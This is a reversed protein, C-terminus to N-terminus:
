FGHPQGEQHPHWAGEFLTKLTNALPSQEDEAEIYICKLNPFASKIKQLDRLSPELRQHENSGVYLRKTKLFIHDGLIPHIEEYSDIGLIISERTKMYEFYLSIAAEMQLGGLEEERLAWDAIEQLSIVGYAVSSILVYKKKPFVIVSPPKDGRPPLRVKFEEMSHLVESVDRITSGDGTTLNTYYREKGIVDFMADPLPEIGYADLSNDPLGPVKKVIESSFGHRGEMTRYDRKYQCYHNVIGKLPIFSDGRALDCEVLKKRPDPRGIDYPFFDNGFLSANIIFPNVEGVPLVGLKGSCFPLWGIEPIILHLGTLDNYHLEITDFVDLLGKVRSYIKQFRKRHERNLLLLPLMDKCVLTTDFSLKVENFLVLSVSITSPRQPSPVFSVEALNM